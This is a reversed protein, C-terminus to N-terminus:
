IVLITNKEKISYDSSEIRTIDMVRNVQDVLSLTTRQLEKIEELSLSM